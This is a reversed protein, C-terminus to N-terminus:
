AIVLATLVVGGAVCWTGQVDRLGTLRAVFTGDDFTVDADEFGLRDGTLGFWAKYISEKASFLARDLGQQGAARLRAREEPSAVVDLVGAPLPAHVEADIGIAGHEDDNAVASARYGRCHTISGVIGAPWLPEGYPGTAIAVRDVGLHALAARACARGTIFERRRKEVARGLSQAESPFLTDDLMDERTEFTAVTPPLLTRFTM